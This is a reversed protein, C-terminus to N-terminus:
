AIRSVSDRRAAATEWFCSGPVQFSLSRHLISWDSLIHPPPTTRATVEPGPAVHPHTPFTEFVSRPFHLRVARFLIVLLFYVFPPASLRIHVIIFYGGGKPSFLVHSTNKEKGGCQKRTEKKTRCREIRIEHQRTHPKACVYIM